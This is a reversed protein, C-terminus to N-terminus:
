GTSWRREGLGQSRDVLQGLAVRWPAPKGVARPSGAGGELIQCASIISRSGREYMKKWEDQKTDAQSFQYTLNCKLNSHAAVVAEIRENQAFVGVVHQIAPKELLVALRGLNGRYIAISSRTSLLYNAQQEILDLNVKYLDLMARMEAALAASFRTAEAAAKRDNRQGTVVHNAIVISLMLVAPIFPGIWHNLTEPM